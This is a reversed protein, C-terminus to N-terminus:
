RRLWGAGALAPRATALNLLHMAARQRISGFAALSRSPRTGM